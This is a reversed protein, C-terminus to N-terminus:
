KRRLAAVQFTPRKPCGASRREKKRGKTRASCETHRSCLCKTAMRLHFARDTSINQKAHTNAANQLHIHFTRKEEGGGVHCGFRTDKSYKWFEPDRPAAGDQFTLRACPSSQRVSRMKAGLSARPIESFVSVGNTRKARCFATRCLRDSCLHKM